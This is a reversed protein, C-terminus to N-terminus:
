DEETTAPTPARDPLRDRYRDPPVWGDVVVAHPRSGAATRRTADDRDCLRRLQAAWGAGLAFWRAVELPDGVLGTAIVLFIIFRTTADAMWRNLGGAVAAVAALGVVVGATTWGRGAVAAGVYGAATVLLGVGLLRPVASKIGTIPAGVTAMAGLAAFSGHGLHGSLVGYAVPVAMALAAAIVQTAAVPWDRSWRVVDRAAITM